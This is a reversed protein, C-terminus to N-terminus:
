EWSNDAAELLGHKLGYHVLETIRSMQMKELIRTKYTSVTKVSLKLDEAIKGVAEGGALLRYVQLERDSLRTHPLREDQMILSFALEAAIQPSIFHGGNAVLRLADILLHPAGDKCLYGSAGARISRVTYEAEPHMSLVLIPLKPQEGHIQRILEVGNRGPMSLDLLLVDWEDRGIMALVQAGDCAEGAVRLDDSNALLQKLGERILAHDDAILVRIM